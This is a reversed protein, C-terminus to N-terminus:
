GGRKANPYPWPNAKCGELRKTQQMMVPALAGREPCGVHDLGLYHGMEHNIVHDQYKDVSLPWGETGRLWRKLNINIQNGNRCSFEGNTQFPICLEDVTPPTSLVVRVAAEGDKVRQLRVTDDGAWSRPDALADDVDKAFDRPRVGTAEETAVSYTVTEGAKGLVTDSPGAANFAGVEGKRGRQRRKREEAQKLEKATPEEPAPEATQQPLNAAFDGGGIVSSALWLVLVFATISAVFRPANSKRPPEGRHRQSV